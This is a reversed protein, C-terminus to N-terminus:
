LSPQPRGVSGRASFGPCRPTARRLQAFADPRCSLAPRSKPFAQDEAKPEASPREVRCQFGSTARLPTCTGSPAPQYASSEFKRQPPASGPRPPSISSGHLAPGAAFSRAAAMEWRLNDSSNSSEFVVRVRQWTARSRLGASQPVGAADAGRWAAPWPPLGLRPLEGSVFKRSLGM